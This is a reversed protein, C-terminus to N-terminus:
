RWIPEATCRAGCLACIGASIQRVHEGPELRGHARHSTSCNQEHDAHLILLTRMARVADPDCSYPEAPVAFMMKLFNAEYDLSNDPYLMPRGILKKYAAAALTPLKALLRVTSLELEAEDLSGDHRYFASLASVASGLVAMPHAEQPFADFFRRFEERILTHRRIEGEWAELERPTPLEGYILLYAVEIFTARDALEEIPYGRYRLIGREGDLYTIASRTSATNAYGYDLTLVGAEKLLAGIDIASEGETGQECPM